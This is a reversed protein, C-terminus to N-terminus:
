PCPARGARAPRPGPGPGPGPPASVATRDAPRGATLALCSWRQSVARRARVLPVSPPAGRMLGAVFSFSHKSDLWGFNSTFRQEARRIDVDPTLTSSSM